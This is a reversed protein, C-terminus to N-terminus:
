TKTVPGFLGQLTHMCVELHEPIAPLNRFRVGLIQVNQFASHTSVVDLM